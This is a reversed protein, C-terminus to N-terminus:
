GEEAGYLHAETPLMTLVEHLFIIRPIQESEYGACRLANSVIELPRRWEALFDRRPVSLSQRETLVGETGGVVRNWRTDISVVDSRWRVDWTTSFTNSPWNIRRHGEARALMDHCLNLIDDTMLSVDYKYGLPIYVGNWTM